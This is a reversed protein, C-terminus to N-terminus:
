FRFLKDNPKLEVVFYKKDNLEEPLKDKLISAVFQLNHHAGVFKATEILQHDHMLEKKDYLGFHLCPINEQDAFLIYAMDFCTIEGQKKGTSFNITDLGVPIISFKYIDRDARRNHVIDYTMAYKEGYLQESIRAFHANFKDLQGQVKNKFAEAFLDKDIDSLTENLKDIATDVEKIQNILQTLNGLQEYKKTLDSVLNEYDAYSSSQLLKDSIESELMRLADLDREVDSIKEDLHPLEKGVYEAKQSLMNNHHALLEEFTKHLAPMFMKAQSYILKLSEMDIESKQNVLEQQAETLISRRLKLSSLQSAMTNIDFKLETLKMMDNEFDPNLRLQSKQKELEEIESKVIGLEAAIVNKGKQKELRLKFSRETNLQEMTTQRLDANSYDCGLMFLHLAEYEADTTNTDLCRLTQTIALNSYRINHGILQRFSPKETLLGMVKQQVVQEFDKEMVPQGDIERIAKNRSLFNRRICVKEADASWSNVLTLTVVIQKDMLFRRVQDNVTRKDEPSVYISKPDKGLCIDILRLVTTKGVNNGTETQSEPTEDVILNLGQHFSMNRILGDISEIKLSEIFM